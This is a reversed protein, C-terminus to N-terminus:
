HLSIHEWWAERIYLVFCSDKFCTFGGSFSFLSSLGKSTWLSFRDNGSDNCTQLHSMVTRIWLYSPSFYSYVLYTTAWTISWFRCWVRILLIISHVSWPSIYLLSFLVILIAELSRIMHSRVYGCRSDSSAM